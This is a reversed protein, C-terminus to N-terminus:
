ITAGQIQNLSEHDLNTFQCYKLQSHMYATGVEGHRNKSVIAEAIGRFLSEKNYVEDRYLFVIQDADQEIAGSERLDSMMPRKNPRKELERNLQSLLVIVCNFEKAMAKLEGTFYAIKLDERAFQKSTKMIQLYDILVLGVSGYQHLVKRISERINAISPRSTDNIQMPVNKLQVVANTYATFEEKPLLHPSNRVLSIDAPAIACCLRMAIQEKPMEGSMILVPKKQVVSVHNAIVQMMTTKGMAPRAAVIMLCGPEVDGLKKDLDYIGTQIGKILTTGAIAAEMKQSIEFFTNSAADHIHFLSESGSETNLKAFATQANQVLEGRNVTLHRAQNIVKIAEAEVQRCVTLDKLKEAYSQLNYFSSPADNMLQILYKEGGSTESYNRMELWQNVLVADYPFDKEDLDVIASFILKHRTAYFDNESLLNEVQAYSGAVTMLAALVAQEIQLNHIPLTNTNM